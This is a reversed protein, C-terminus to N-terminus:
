VVPNWNSKQSEYENKEDPMWNTSGDPFVNVLLESFWLRRAPTDFISGYRIYGYVIFPKTQDIIATADEPSIVLDPWLDRADLTYTLNPEIVTKQFLHGQGIGTDLPFDFAFNLNWDLLFAPTNGYNKVTVKVRPSQLNAPDSCDAGFDFEQVKLTPIAAGMAVQASIHAAEASKQAAAVSDTLIQTQNSMHGAQSHIDGRTQRLLIAQWIMSGVQLFGVFVLGGTLWALRNQIKLNERRQQCAEDCTPATPKPSSTFSKQSNRNCTQGNPQEQGEGSGGSKTIGAKPAHSPPKQSSGVGVLVLLGFTTFWKRM